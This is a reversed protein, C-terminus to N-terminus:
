TLAGHAEPQEELLFRGEEAEYGFLARSESSAMPQSRKVNLDRDYTM